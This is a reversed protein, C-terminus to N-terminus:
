TNKSKKNRTKTGVVFAGENDSKSELPDVEVEEGLDTTFTMPLKQILNYNRPIKSERWGSSQALFTFSALKNEIIKRCVLGSGYVGILYKSSLNSFASNIGDFFPIINDTIEDEDFDNDVAFYIPTFDPQGIITRAYDHAYEGYKKGRDYTYKDITPYGNQWIAVIKIGASCLKKAEKLTLDKKDNNINYYRGVFSFNMQKLDDIYASLDTIKDCGISM